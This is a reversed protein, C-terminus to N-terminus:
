DTNLPRAEFLPNLAPAGEEARYVYGILGDGSMEFNVDACDLIWQIMPLDLLMTGLRADACTVDFRKTFAISEVGIRYQGYVAIGPLRKRTVAVHPMDIGPFRATVFTFFLKTSEQVTSFDAANTFQNTRGG